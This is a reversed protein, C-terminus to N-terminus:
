IGGYWLAKEGATAGPNFGLDVEQISGDAIETSTITGSGVFSGTEAVSRQDYIDSNTVGSVGADVRIVALVVSGSTRLPAPPNSTANGTKVSITGTSDMEVTDYRPNTSDAATLTKSTASAKSVDTGGVVADGDAISITMDDTGGDTVELEGGVGSVIGTGLVVDTSSLFANAHLPEGDQYDYM